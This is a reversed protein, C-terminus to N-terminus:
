GHEPPQPGGRREGDAPRRRPDSKWGSVKAGSSGARWVCLSSRDPAAEWRCQPACVVPRGAAPWYCLRRVLGRRAEVGRALLYTMSNKHPGPVSCRVFSTPEIVTVVYRVFCRDDTRDAVCRPAGFSTGSVPADVAGPPTGSRAPRETPYGDGLPNTGPAAVGALASCAVPRGAGPWARGRTPSRRTAVISALDAPSADRRFKSVAGFARQPRSSGPRGGIWITPGRSTRSVVLPIM